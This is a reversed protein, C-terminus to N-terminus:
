YFSIKRFLDIKLYKIKDLRPMATRRVKAQAGLCITEFVGKFFVGPL